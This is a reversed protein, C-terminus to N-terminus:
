YGPNQEINPNGNLEARPIPWQWRYDNAEIKLDNAVLTHAQPVREFGEGRRKLDFWYFGEFMLEKKREQAIFSHIEVNDDIEYDNDGTRTIILTELLNIAEEKNDLHAEAEAIILYMEALRMVKPMNTGQTAAMVYEPNTPYKYILDGTWGYQTQANTIYASRRIDLNADYLDVWWSAPIYDPNPYAWQNNRNYFNYGPAGGFDTAAYQVKWIIESGIDNVWMDRFQSKPTLQYGSTMVKNAHEKAKEYEKMDLYIRAALGNAFADNFGYNNTPFYTADEFYELATEIDALMLEYVEEVTNRNPELVNPYETIYPIGLDSSATSADYAKAFIRVLNHYVLARGLHAQALLGNEKDQDMEVAHIGNILTNCNFVTSYVSGWVGAPEGSGPNLRWAYADGWANSFGVAAFTADTIADLTSTLYTGYSSSSKFGSYMGNVLNVADRESQLIEDVETKDHPKQNFFDECSSLGMTLGIIFTYKLIKQLM